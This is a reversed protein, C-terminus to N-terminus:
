EGDAADKEDGAGTVKRVVVTGFAWPVPAYPMLLLMVVLPPCFVKFFSRMAGKRLGPVGGDETMVRCGTLAKGLTRGALGDALAMYGFTICALAFLPMSGDAVVIENLPGFWWTLPKGWLLSVLLLGPLLDILAAFMRRSPEALAFGEPPLIVRIQRNQPMAVVMLSIVVAWAMLLLFVFGDEGGRLAGLKLEGEALVAGDRSLVRATISDEAGSSLLWLEEDYVAASEPLPEGEFLAFRIAGQRRLVLCALGGDEETVLVTEDGLGLGIVERGHLDFQVVSREWGHGADEGAADDSRGDHTWLVSEGPVEGPVLVGLGEPLGILEMLGPDLSADSLEVPLAVDVWNKNDLVLLKAGRNTDASDMHLYVRGGAEVGGILRDASRLPTVAELSGIVAIGARDEYVGRRVPFLRDEGDGRAEFILLPGGSTGIIFEPLEGIPTVRRLGAVDEDRQALLLEVNEGSRRAVWVGIDASAALWQRDAASSDDGADQAMAGSGLVCLVAVCCLLWGRRLLTM